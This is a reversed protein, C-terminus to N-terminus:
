GGRKRLQKRSILQFGYEPRVWTQGNHHTVSYENRPPNYHTVVGVASLSGVVYGYFGVRDDMKCEM